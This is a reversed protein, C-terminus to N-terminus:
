KEAGSFLEALGEPSVVIGLERKVRRAFLTRAEGINSEDWPKMNRIESLIQNFKRNVPQMQKELHKQMAREDVKVTIKNRMIGRIFFNSGM